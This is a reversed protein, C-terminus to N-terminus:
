NSFFGIKNFLYELLNKIESFKTLSLDRKIIILCDFGKKFFPESELIIFKIQRRIRNRDTSKKSVKASIIICFRNNDSSNKLIKVGVSDSYFAKGNKLVNEIDKVKNLRNEKKLM